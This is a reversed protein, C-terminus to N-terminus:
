RGGPLSRAAAANNVAEHASCHRRAHRSRMALVWLCPAGLRQGSVGTAQMLAWHRPRMAPSRLDAVLPVSVLYNKVSQDLGKYVSEERVQLPAPTCPRLANTLRV